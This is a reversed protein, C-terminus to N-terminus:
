KLSGEEVSQKYQKMIWNSIPEGATPTLVLLTALGGVVKYMPCTLRNLYSGPYKEPLSGVMKRYALEGLLTGIKAMM